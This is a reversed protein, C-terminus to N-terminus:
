RGAPARAVMSDPDVDGADDLRDPRAHGPELGAIADERVQEALRQAGERLVDAAGSFANWGIGAPIDNSSAAM